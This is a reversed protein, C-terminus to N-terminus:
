SNGAQKSRSDVIKTCQVCIRQTATLAKPMVWEWANPIPKLGLGPNLAGALWGNGEGPSGRLGIGPYALLFHCADRLQRADGRRFRHMDIGRCADESQSV